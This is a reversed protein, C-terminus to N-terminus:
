EIIDFRQVDFRGYSANRWQGLGSFRGYELIAQILETTIEKHHFLTIEFYLTVGANILDSRTVTVRPGQPTNALLPRELVDHPEAIFAGNDKFHIKRPHVFVYNTLKSKLAKVGLIDKLTNGAHKLFGKVMYDYVFLGDDDAHFGTWGTNEDIETVTDTESDGNAKERKSEIYKEYVEKNKPVTGLMPEALVIQVEITTLRTKDKKATPKTETATTM